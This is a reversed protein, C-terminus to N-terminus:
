VGVFTIIIDTDIEGTAPIVENPDKASISVNFEKNYFSMGTTSDIKDLYQKLTNLRSNYEDNSLSTVFELEGVNKPTVKVTVFKNDWYKKATNLADMGNLQSNNYRDLEGYGDIIGFKETEGAMIYARTYASIGLIAATIIGISIFIGTAITLAKTLNDEM